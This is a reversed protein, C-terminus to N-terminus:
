DTMPILLMGGSETCSGSIGNEAAIAEPSTGFRRALEWLEEGAEARCLKLAIRRDRALPRETDVSLDTLPRVGSGRTVLGTLTLEARLEASHGDALHYSCSKVEVAERSVPQECVYEFPVENELWVPVGESAGLASFRLSGSIISGGNESDSVSLSGAECAAFSLGELEGDECALLATSTLDLSLEESIGCLASEGAAATCEYATSFADTVVELERYKVATCGLLMVLECELTQPADPQPVVCCSSVTLEPMVTFSEDLGDIDTLQSFPLGFRMTEVATSEPDAPTYLLDINAEGKLMLKGSIVRRETIDIHCGTRLVAGIPPKSGGLELEELVTLRKSATLREVPCSVTEKKLRIGGGEADTIVRQSSEATVRVKVTFAGRIDVRRRSVVRCSVNGPRACASVVPAILEGGLSLTKSVSTKHELLNIRGSDASLYLVKLTVETELSLKDGCISQSVICPDIRCRIIRFVDPCYDPLVLDKEATQEFSTDLATVTQLLTESSVRLQAATM